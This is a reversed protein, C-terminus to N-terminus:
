LNQVRSICTKKRTKIIKTVKKILNYVKNVDNGDEKFYLINNAEAIKKLSRKKAQRKHLPTYVSYLNNECAFIIPLNHLSAFNACEYFIGEELSADGVYVVTISNSKSRKQSLSSGTALGISSSVIPISAMFNVSLDQLHMSGGRGGVCGGSKGYLELIMKKIDGGKAIYHAHSRHNSYLKDKINLNRILGVAAAEQGISLHVPCRMEGKPYELAIKEEVYRILAVEKYLQLLINM